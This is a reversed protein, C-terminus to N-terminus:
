VKIKQYKKDFKWKVKEKVYWFNDKDKFIDIIKDKKVVFCLDFYMIYRYDNGEIKHLNGTNVARIIKDEIERFSECKATSIPCLEMYKEIINRKIKM